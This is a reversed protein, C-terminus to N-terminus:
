VQARKTLYGEVEADLYVPLKFGVNPKFFKSRVGNSFDYRQKM